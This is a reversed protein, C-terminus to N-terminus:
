ILYNQASEISALIQDKQGATIAALFWWKTLLNELHQKNATVTKDLELHAVPEGKVIKEILDVSAFANNITQPVDIILDLDAQTIEPAEM